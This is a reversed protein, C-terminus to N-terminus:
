KQAPKAALGKTTPIIVAAAAKSSGQKSSRMFGAPVNLTKLQTAGTIPDVNAGTQDAGVQIGLFGAMLAFSVLLIRKM